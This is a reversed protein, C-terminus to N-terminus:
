DLDTYASTVMDTAGATIDIILYRGKQPFFDYTYETNGSDYALDTVINTSELKSTIVAAGTFLGPTVTSGSPFHNSMRFAANITAGSLSQTKQTAPDVWACTLGSFQLSFPEASLIPYYRDDKLDIMFTSTGSALISVGSMIRVTNKSRTDGAYVNSIGLFILVILLFIIKNRM